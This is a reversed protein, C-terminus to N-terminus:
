LLGLSETPPAYRDVRTYSRDLFPSEALGLLLGWTSIMSQEGLEIVSSCESALKRLVRNYSNSYYNSDHMKELDDKSSGCLVLCVNFIVLFLSRLSVVEM